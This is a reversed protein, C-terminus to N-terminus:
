GRMDTVQNKSNIVRYAIGKDRAEKIIAWTRKSNRIFNHFALVLNINILTVKTDSTGGVHEDQAVESKFGLEKAIGLAYTAAGPMLQHYIVDEDRNYIALTKRIVDKDHWMLDGCVLINMNKDGNPPIIGILGPIFTM